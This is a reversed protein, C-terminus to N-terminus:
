LCFNFFYFILFNFCFNLNLNNIFCSLGLNFLFMPKYKVEYNSHIVTM